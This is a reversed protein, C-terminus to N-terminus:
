AMNSIYEPHTWEIGTLTSKRPFLFGMYSDGFVQKFNGKLGINYHNHYQFMRELTTLNKSIQYLQTIYLALVSILFAVDSVGLMILIRWELDHWYMFVVMLLCSIDLIIAWLLMVMFYQHNGLGVCQGLAPCHHDMRTVCQMCTKCHHTRPPKIKNCEKCVNLHSNNPDDTDLQISGPDTFCSLAYTYIFMLDIALEVILVFFNM